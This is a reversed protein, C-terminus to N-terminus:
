AADESPPAEGLDPTEVSAFLLERDTPMRSGKAASKTVEPMGQIAPPATPRPPHFTVDLGDMSLSAVGLERGLKILREADSLKM